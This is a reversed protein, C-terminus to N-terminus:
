VMVERTGVQALNIWGMGVWERERLDTKTNDVWRSRLRGIYIMGAVYGARRM